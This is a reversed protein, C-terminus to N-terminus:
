LSRIRSTQRREGPCAAHATSTRQQQAPRVQVCCTNVSPQSAAAKSTDFFFPAVCGTFQQAGERDLDVDGCTPKACRYRMIGDWLLGDNNVGSGECRTDMFLQSLEFARFGAGPMAAVQLDEVGFGVRCDGCADFVVTGGPLQVPGNKAWAYDNTAPQLPSSQSYLGRLRAGATGIGGARFQVYTLYAPSEPRIAFQLPNDPPIIGPTSGSSQLVPGFRLAECTDAATAGCQRSTGPLPRRCTFADATRIPTWPPSVPFPPQAMALTRVQGDCILGAQAPEVVDHQQPDSAAAPAALELQQANGPQAAGPVAAASLCLLLTAVLLPLKRMNFRASPQM